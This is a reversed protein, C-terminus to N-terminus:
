PWIIAKVKVYFDNVGECEDERRQTAPLPCGCVWIKRFFKDLGVGDHGEETLLHVYIYIYEYIYIHTFIYTYIYIYSPYM